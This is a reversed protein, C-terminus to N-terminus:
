RAISHLRSHGCDIVLHMAITVEGKERYYKLLFAVCRNWLGTFDMFHQDACTHSCLPFARVRELKMLALM